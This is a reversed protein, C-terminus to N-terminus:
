WVPKGLSDLYATFEDITCGLYKSIKRAINLSPRHPKDRDLIRSLHSETIGVEECLERRNTISIEKRIIM